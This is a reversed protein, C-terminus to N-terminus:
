LGDKQDHPPHPPYHPLHDDSSDGPLSYCALDDSPETPYPSLYTLYGM